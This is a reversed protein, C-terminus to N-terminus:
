VIPVGIVLRTDQDGVETRVTAGLATLHLAFNNLFVEGDSDPIAGDLISNTRTLQQQSMRFGPARFEIAAFSGRRHISVRIRGTFGLTEMYTLLSTQDPFGEAYTAVNEKGTFGQALMLAHLASEKSGDEPLGTTRESTEDETHTVEQLLEGIDLELALGNIDSELSITQLLRYLEVNPADNDPVRPLSRHSLRDRWLRLLFEVIDVKHTGGSLFDDLVGAAKRCWWHCAARELQHRLTITRSRLLFARREQARTLTPLLLEPAHEKPVYSFAGSEMCKAANRVDAFATLVISPVSPFLSALLEVLHLGSEPSEMRMDLLAVDIGDGQTEILERATAESACGEVLYGYEQLLEVQSELFPRDNEAFLVRM